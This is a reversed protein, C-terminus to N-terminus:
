EMKGLLRSVRVAKDQDLKPIIKAVQDAKMAQLIRTVTGDEMDNLLPALKSPSMASYVKVLNKFDKDVVRQLADIKGQLDKQLATLKELKADVDKQLAALSEERRQLEKERLDAAQEREKLSVALEIEGPGVRVPTKEVAMAMTPLVALLLMVGPWWLAVGFRKEIKM